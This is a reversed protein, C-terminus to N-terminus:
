FARTVSCRCHRIDSYRPQFLQLTDTILSHWFSDSSRLNETFVVGSYYVHFPSVM